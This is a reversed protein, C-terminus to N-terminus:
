THPFLSIKFIRELFTLLIFKRRRIINERLTTLVVNRGKKQLDLGNGGRTKGEGRECEKREEEWIGLEEAWAGRHKVWRYKWSGGSM